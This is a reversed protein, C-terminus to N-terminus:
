CCGADIGEARAAELNRMFRDHKDRERKEIRSRLAPTSRCHSSVHYYRGKVYQFRVYARVFVIKQKKLTKM